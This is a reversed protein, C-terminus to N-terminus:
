RKVIQIAREVAEELGETAKIGAENLMKRAEEENTGVLRVVVPKLFGVRGKAELIGRAVEDCRTIGGLLNVVIVRVSPVSAVLKVAHMVRESEAGGGVDLFNAARGGYYQILDLTAPRLLKIHQFSGAIPVRRNLWDPLLGREALDVLDM